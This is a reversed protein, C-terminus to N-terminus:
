KMYGMGALSFLDDFGSLLQKQGDRWVVINHFWVTPLDPHDFSQPRPELTHAMDSLITSSESRNIFVRKHSIMDKTKAWNGQRFIAWEDPKWGSDSAPITHGINTGTPDTPSELASFLGQRRMTEAAQNALVSFPMGIRLAAFLEQDIALTQVLMSKVQPNQGLYLTLGFDGIMGTARDVPSAYLM